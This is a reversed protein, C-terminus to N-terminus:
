TTAILLVSDTDRARQRLYFGDNDYFLEHTKQTLRGAVMDLRSIGPRRGAATISDMLTAQGRFLDVDRPVGLAEVPADPLFTWERKLTLWQLRGQIMVRPPQDDGQDLVEAVRQLPVGITEHSSEKRLVVTHAQVDYVTFRDYEPQPVLPAVRVVTKKAALQRLRAVRDGHGDVNQDEGRIHRLLETGLLTRFFPYVSKENKAWVLNEIERMTRFLLVVKNHTALERAKPM